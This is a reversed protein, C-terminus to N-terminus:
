RQFYPCVSPCHICGTRTIRPRHLILSDIQLSAILHKVITRNVAGIVDPLEQGNYMGEGETPLLSKVGFGDIGVAIVGDEPNALPFALGLQLARGLRFRKELDNGSCFMPKLSM